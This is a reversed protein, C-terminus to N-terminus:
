MRVLLDLLREERERRQAQLGIVEQQLAMLERSGRVEGGYLRQEERTVRATADDVEGQLGRQEREVLAVANQAERQRVEAAILEPSGALREQLDRQEGSRASIDQDLLQLQYLKRIDSM